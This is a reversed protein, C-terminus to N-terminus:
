IQTVYPLDSPFGVIPLPNNMRSRARSNKYMTGSAFNLGAIQERKPNPISWTNYVMRSPTFIIFPAAKYDIPRLVPTNADPLRERRCTTRGM